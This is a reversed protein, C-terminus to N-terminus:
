FNYWNFISFIDGMFIYDLVLYLIVSSVIFFLVSIVILIIGPIKKKCIFCVIAAFLSILGPAYLILLILLINWIALIISSISYDM